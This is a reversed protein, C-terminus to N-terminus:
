FGKTLMNRTLNVGRSYRIPKNSKFGPSSKVTGCRGCLISISVGDPVSKLNLSLVEVFAFKRGSTYNYYRFFPCICLKCSSIKGLKQNWGPPARWLRPRPRNAAALTRCLYRGPASFCIKQSSPSIDPKWHSNRVIDLKFIGLNNAFYTHWWRQIMAYPRHIIAINWRWGRSM